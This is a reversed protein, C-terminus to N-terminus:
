PQKEGSIHEFTVAVRGFGRNRGMGLRRILPTAEALKALVGTDAEAHVPAQLRMPAAVEIMRLSGDKAGGRADVATMTRHDFLADVIDRQAGTRAWNRWPGSMEAADFRVKGPVTEFRAYHGERATNDSHEPPQAGFLATIHQEECGGFAMLETVAERALGKVATGPIWPLGEPSRLVADDLAGGDGRGQGIRWWSLLTFVLTGQHIM